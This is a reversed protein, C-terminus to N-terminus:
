RLSSFIRVLAVLLPLPLLQASDCAAVQPIELGMDADCVAAQERRQEFWVRRLQSLQLMMHMAAAAAARLPDAMRKCFDLVLLLQLACQMPKASWVPVVWTIFAIEPAHAKQHMSWPVSTMDRLESNVCRIMQREHNWMCSTSFHKDCPRRKFCVQIPWNGQPM